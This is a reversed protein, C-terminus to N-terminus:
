REIWDCSHVACWRVVFMDNHESGRMATGAFGSGFDFGKVAPLSLMAHALLAPLKDFCPEGWGVGVGTCVCTM